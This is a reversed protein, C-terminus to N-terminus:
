CAYLQTQDEISVHDIWAGDAGLSGSADKEYAWRIVHEGPGLELVYPQWSQIGSMAARYVDDVYIVLYDRRWESSVRWQFSVTKPGTIALALESTQGDGVRGSRMAGDEDFSDDVAPRWGNESEQWDLGSQNVVQGIPDQRRFVTVIGPRSETSGFENTVTFTYRGADASSSEEILLQSSTANPLPSGEKQWQFQLPFSGTAQGGLVIPRGEAVGVREPHRIVVPEKADLPSVRIDDLWGADSGNTGRDDKRYTWRVRHSGEGVLLSQRQWDREGAIRHHEENDVFVSLVDFVESSVRWAFDVSVPGSIEVELSSHQNKTIKGSQIADIGDHTSDTQVFWDANGTLQWDLNEAEVAVGISPAILFVDVRAPESITEGFLNSVIADYDGAVQRDAAAVILLPDTAGEIPKGDRRWLYTLPPFGTAQVRLVASDGVGITTSQPSKEITPALSSDVVKLIAIRSTVVGATNSVEVWYQGATENTVEEFLLTDQSDGQISEGNQFWHYSFPHTGEISVSFGAGEGTSVSIDNPQRVIRPALPESVIAITVPTSATRGFENSVDVTYQGPHNATLSEFRLTPGEAATLINGNHRWQYSLPARGIAEVSLEYDVGVLSSVGKPQRVIVPPIGGNPEFVVQDLWGRDEGASLGTDKFYVWALSHPGPPIEFEAHIWDQDGSIAAIPENDILFQLFDFEEESSVAWFFSIKGPGIVSTQIQSKQAGKILPSAVADVGDRSRNTDVQWQGDGSSLWVSEEQDVAAALDARPVSVSLTATSTRVGLHNEVAVRYIGAATVNTDEIVLSFGDAGPLIVGDKSWSYRLPAEGSVSVSFLTRQGAVVTTNFLRSEIIPFGGAASDQLANAANARGGTITRGALGTTDHPKGVRDVSSLLRRITARYDDEPYRSKLLALIGSVHPAAMSTGLQPHYSNDSDGWTSIIDFGPAALHVSHEGFNSFDSLQGDPAHSAVTVINDFPYNSPYNPVIDNDLRKNGAAVIFLIGAEHTAAVAEAILQKRRTSGWSNNIMDAGNERAYDICTALDSSKGNGLRLGKLAMLQVRWAVGVVGLGNNGRAGITGSVHTGHGTTDSVDGNLTTPDIGHVDDVFGNGDNDLGDDPIEGPNHWLNDALDEHTTRLGTDIVAVVIDSADRAFDWAKPADIDTDAIGNFQGTNHLGWLSGDAYRPDNPVATVQVLGNSEAYAITNPQQQLIELAQPVRDLHTESLHVVYWHPRTPHATATADLQALLAELASIETNPQLKVLVEDAVTQERGTSEYIFSV